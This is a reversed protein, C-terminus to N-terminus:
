NLVKKCTWASWNTGGGSMRYAYQINYEADLLQEPTGRSSFARIQFIGYSSPNLSRDGIANDRVGSECQAIKLASESNEGFVEIIRNSIQEKSWKQTPEVKAIVQPRIPEPTPTPTAIPTPIPIEIAQHVIVPETIISISTESQLTIPEVKAEEVESLNYLSLPLIITIILRIFVKSLSSM